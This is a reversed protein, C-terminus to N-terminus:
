RQKEQAEKRYMEKKQQLDREAQKRAEVDKTQKESIEKAKSIVEKVTKSGIFTAIVKWRDNTGQPFKVLGKSLKKVEDQTWNKGVIDKKSMNEDEQKKLMKLEEEARIQENKTKVIKEFQNTFDKKIKVLDGKLKDLDSYKPYKKAMEEIYYKDYKSDAM